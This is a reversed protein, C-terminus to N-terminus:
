TLDVVEVRPNAAILEVVREAIQRPMIETRKPGAEVHCHHCAMNCLKGVNVQLTKIWTRDLPRLGHGRLAEDFDPTEEVPAPVTLRSAISATMPLLRRGEWERAFM